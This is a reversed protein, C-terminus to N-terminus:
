GGNVIFTPLSVNTTSCWVEFSYYKVHWIFQFKFKKNWAIIFYVCCYIELPHKFNILYDYFADRIVYVRVIISVFRSYIRGIRSKIRPKQIRLYDREERRVNRRIRQCIYIWTLFIPASTTISQRSQFLVTLPVTCEGTLEFHFSIKM